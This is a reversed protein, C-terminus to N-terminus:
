NEVSYPKKNEYLELAKKFTELQLENASAIAQKQYKVANEFDGHAAYAAAVVELDEPLMDTTLKLFKEALEVSKQADAASRNESTALMWAYQSIALLNEPEINLASEFDQAAQPLEGRAKRVNARSAYAEANNSNLRIAEDLDALAEDFVDYLFLCNGRALYDVDSQGGLEIVADLDDLALAYEGIDYLELARRRLSEIDKPNKDLALTAEAIAKDVDAQLTDNLGLWCQAREEYLVPDIGGYFAMALTYDSIADEYQKTKLYALARNRRADPDADDKELVQDLLGIASEYKENAIYAAALNVMIDVDDKAIKNALELDKIAASANELELHVIGRLTLSDIDESDKGLTKDLAALASEYDGAEFHSEANSEAENDPDNGNAADRNCANFSTVIVLLSLGFVLRFLM